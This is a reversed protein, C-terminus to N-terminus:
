AAALSGTEVAAIAKAQNIDQAYGSGYLCCALQNVLPLPLPTKGELASRMWEVTARMERQGAPEARDPRPVEAEFLTDLKGHELFDLSPRHSASGFAQGGAGKVLLALTEEGFFEILATADLDGAVNCVHLTAGDLPTLMPAIAHASTDVGILSKLAMFAALGPSLLTIPLLAIGGADLTNQTQARTACPLVGFERFMSTVALGGNTELAGHVLVPIGFRRLLLAILPSLNAADYECGYNPIVVCHRATQPPQLRNMREALADRLGIMLTVNRCHRALAALLAGLEIDPVGGDLIAAYIGHATKSSFEPVLPGPALLMRLAPVFNPM